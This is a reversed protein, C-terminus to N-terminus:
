NREVMNILFEQKQDKTMCEYAANLLKTQIENYSKKGLNRVHLLSGDQIANVIDEVTNIGNRKMANYSRMSFDLADIKTEYLSANVMLNMKVSKGFAEYLAYVIGKNEADEYLEAILNGKDM